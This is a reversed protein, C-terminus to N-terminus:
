TTFAVAGAVGDSGYLASAPGRLIEVSKVLDLDNYGGRGVAQAGFSFGNPVRVGDNIILVRDGGMGRITFGSNADRGAGSLALSFRAPSTPVSVGPEFRILDKIDTALMTEIQAADIVSVTAPTNSALRQSRTGIVVVPDVEAAPAAAPAEARAPHIILASGVAAAATSLLLLNRM